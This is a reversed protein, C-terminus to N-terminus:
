PRLITWRMIECNSARLDRMTQLIEPTTEGILWLGPNLPMNATRKKISRV